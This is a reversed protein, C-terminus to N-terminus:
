YLFTASQFNCCSAYAVGRLCTELATGGVSSRTNLACIPVVCFAIAVVARGCLYVALHFADEQSESAGTKASMGISCYRETPVVVKVLRDPIRCCWSHWSRSSSEIHTTQAFRAQQLLLKEFDFPFGRRSNHLACSCCMRQLVGVQTTKRCANRCSRELPSKKRETKKSDSRLMKNKSSALARQM